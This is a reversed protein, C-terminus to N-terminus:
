NQVRISQPVSFCSSHGAATMTPLTLRWRVASNATRSFICLLILTTERLLSSIQASECPSPPGRGSERKISALVKNAKIVGEVGALRGERGYWFWELIASIVSESRRCANSVVARSALRASGFRIGRSSNRAPRCCSAVSNPSCDECCVSTLSIM